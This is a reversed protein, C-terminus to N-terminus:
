GPLTFYFTAGREVAAHAWIRGGHRNIIRQVTALGIGSGSFDASSHLRQFPGFLNEAYQMDFGAGDDRMFYVREGGQQRVGFEIRATPHKATYKWANGLLNAVVLRLLRADGDAIVDPEIIVTVDREPDAHSLEDAIEQTLASLSVPERHMAARATRSLGLLDDILNEMRQGSALVRELLHRADPVLVDGYDDLLMRAFGTIGRLPARLDHSVSYSFAELEKNAAELQVTREHVRRELETYLRANAIALAARDALEQVLAEDDVTYEHEPRDRWVALLGTVRGDVRLPVALVGHVAFRDLYTWQSEPILARVATPSGLWLRLPTGAQLVDAVLQHDAAWPAESLQRQALVRAALDSHHTALPVLTRGDPALVSIVCGDNMTESIVRAITHVVNRMDLRAETFARSVEALVRTRAATRLREQQAQRAETVDVGVGVTGIICGDPGRLPEVRAQYSHGMSKAEFSVAEGRLARRHADLSAASPNFSAVLEHLNHGLLREPQLGINHFTSGVASVFRLARDTSTVLAPVQEVLLRLGADSARTVLEAQKAETVDEHILLVRPAARHRFCFGQLRFWRRKQGAGAYELTFGAREGALLARIDAAARQADEVQAGTAQDCHALYNAGLDCARGAFGHAPASQRWAHNVFVITGHRDVIAIAAAVADLGAALM